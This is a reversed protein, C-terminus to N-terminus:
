LVPPSFYNLETGQFRSFRGLDDVQIEACKSDPRRGASQRAVTEIKVPSLFYGEGLEKMVEQKKDLLSLSNTRSLSVVFCFCSTRVRGRIVGPGPKVKLFLSNCFQPWHANM